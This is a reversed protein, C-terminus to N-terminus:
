AFSSCIFTVLDHPLKASRLSIDDGDGSQGSGDFFYHFTTDGPFSAEAYGGQNEWYLSIEGNGALMAKPIPARMPLHGLFVYADTISKRKGPHGGYGDWNEPLSEYSALKSVLNNLNWRAAGEYSTPQTKDATPYLAFSPPKRDAAAHEMMAQMSEADVLQISGVVCLDPGVEQVAPLQVDDIGHVDIAWRTAWNGKFTVRPPLAGYPVIIGTASMDIESM